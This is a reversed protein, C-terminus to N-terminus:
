TTTENIEIVMHEAMYPCEDFVSEKYDETFFKEEPCNDPNARAIFEYFSSDGNLDTNMCFAYRKETHEGAGSFFFRCKECISRRRKM